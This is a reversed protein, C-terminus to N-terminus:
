CRDFAVGHAGGDVTQLELAHALAKAAHAHHLFEIQCHLLSLEDDQEAFGTAALGRHQAHDGAEFVDAFPVDEDVALVHCIQSRHRAVNGHHELVVREIRVHVHRLVHTERQVQCALWPGFNFLADVFRCFDQVDRVQELALGFFQGAPLTLPDRDSAADHALRRDKQKIFRQGIQVGLQAAVHAGFQGHQM